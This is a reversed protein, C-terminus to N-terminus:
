RQTAASHPDARVCFAFRVFAIAINKFFLPVSGGWIKWIRGTRRSVSRRSGWLAAVLCKLFNKQYEFWSLGHWISYIQNLIKWIINFLRLIYKILGPVISLICPSGKATLYMTCDFFTRLWIVLCLVRCRWNLKMMLSHHHYMCGWLCYCGLDGGFWLSSWVERGRCLSLGCGFIFLSVPGHLGGAIAFVSWHVSALICILFM